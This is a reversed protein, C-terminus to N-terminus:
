HIDELRNTLETLASQIIAKRRLYEADLYTRVNGMGGEAMEKRLSQWVDRVGGSELNQEFQNFIQESGSKTSSLEDKPM